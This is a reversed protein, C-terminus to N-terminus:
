DHIIEKLQSTLSPESSAHHIKRLYAECRKMQGKVTRYDADVLKTSGDLFMVATQHGRAHISLIANYHLWICDEQQPSRTPFYISQSIESILVAAKQRVGLVARFSACRGEYSSGHQLCIEHLLATPTGAFFSHKNKRELVTMKRTQDYYLCTIDSM